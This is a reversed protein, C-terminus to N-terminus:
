DKEEVAIARHKDPLFIEYFVFSGLATLTRCDRSLHVSGFIM